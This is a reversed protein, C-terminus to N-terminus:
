MTDFFEMQWLPYALMNILLLSFNEDRDARTWQPNGLLSCKLLNIIVVGEEIRDLKLLVDQWVFQRRVKMRIQEGNELHISAWDILLDKLCENTAYHSVHEDNRVEMTIDEPCDDLQDVLPGETFQTNESLTSYLDYAPTDSQRLVYNVADETSSTSEIAKELLSPSKHPFIEKLNNLVLHRDGSLSEQALLDRPDYSDKTSNNHRPSPQSLCKAKDVPDSVDVTNSASRNSM